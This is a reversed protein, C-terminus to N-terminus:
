PLVDSFLAFAILALSKSNLKFFLTFSVPFVPHFQFFCSSVLLLLFIPLFFVGFVLLFQIISISFNRDM